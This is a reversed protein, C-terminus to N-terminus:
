RAGLLHERLGAHEVFDDLEARIPSFIRDERRRAGFQQGNHAVSATAVARDHPQSDPPRIRISEPPTVSSTCTSPSPRGTTNSCPKGSVFRNHDFCTGANTSAPNWTM